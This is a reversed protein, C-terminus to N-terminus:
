ETVTVTIIGKTDVMAKEGSEPHYARIVLEGDYGGVALCKKAYEELALEDVGYGPHIQDSKAVVIDDIMVLIAVNQNSARPNAYFLTVKSESLDVTVGTGYTVNIAGGGEPSELKSGDDGELPKQNGETDQPPYDPTILAAGSDRFWIAWVSVGISLLLILILVVIIITMTKKNM